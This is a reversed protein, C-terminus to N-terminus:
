AARRSVLENNENLVHPVNTHMSAIPVPNHVARTIDALSLGLALFTPAAAYRPRWFPAFNSKFQRLGANRTREVVHM